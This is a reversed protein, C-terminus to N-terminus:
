LDNEGPDYGLLSMEFNKPFERLYKYGLLHMVPILLAPPLKVVPITLV